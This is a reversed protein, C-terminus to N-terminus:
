PPRKKRPAKFKEEDFSVIEGRHEVIKFCKQCMADGRRRKESLSTSGRSIFHSNFNFSM